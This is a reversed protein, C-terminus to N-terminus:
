FYSPRSRTEKQKCAKCMPTVDGNGTVYRRGGCDCRSSPKDSIRRSCNDCLVRVVRGRDRAINRGATCDACIVDAHRTLNARIHPPLTQMDAENKKDEARQEQNYSGSMAAAAEAMDAAARASQRLWETLQAQRQVLVSIQSQVAVMEHMLQLQANPSLIVVRQGEGAANPSGPILPSPAGFVIPTPSAHYMAPSIPPLFRGYPSPGPFPAPSPIYMTPLDPMEESDTNDDDADDANDVDDAKADDASPPSETTSAAAVATAATLRKEAM